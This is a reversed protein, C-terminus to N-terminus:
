CKSVNAMAKLRQRAYHIRSKVTGPKAGTMAAIEGYDYGEAYLWLSRMAVDRRAMDRILSVLSRSAAVDLPDSAACVAVGDLLPCFPVCARHRERSKWTNAMIASLWPKIDRGSDYRGAHLLAKVITDHALDEGDFEDGAMRCAVGRIWSYLAGIEREVESM